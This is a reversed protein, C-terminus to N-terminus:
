FFEGSSAAPVPAAPHPVVGQISEPKPAAVPAAQPASEAAPMPAPERRAVRKPRTARRRATARRARTSARPLEHRDRNDPLVFARAPENTEARSAPRNERGRPMVAIVAAVLLLGLAVRPLPRPAAITLADRRGADSFEASADAGNPQTQGAPLAEAGFEFAGATRPRSLM